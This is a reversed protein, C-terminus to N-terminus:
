FTLKGDNPDKVKPNIGLTPAYKLIKNLWVQATGVTKSFRSLSPIRVLVTAVGVLAGLLQLIVELTQSLEM